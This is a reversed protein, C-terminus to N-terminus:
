CLIWNLTGSLFFLLLQGRLLLVLEMWGFGIPDRPRESCTGGAGHIGLLSRGIVCYMVGWCFGREDEVLDPHLHSPPWSVGFLSAFLVVLTRVALFADPHRDAKQAKPATERCM